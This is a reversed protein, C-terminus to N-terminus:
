QEYTGVKKDLKMREYNRKIQPSREMVDLIIKNCNDEYMRLIIIKNTIKYLMDNYVVPRDEIESEGILVSQQHLRESLERYFTKGYKSWPRKGIKIQSDIYQYVASCNKYNIPTTDAFSITSLLISTLLLIIKMTIEQKLSYVMFLLVIFPDNLGKRM